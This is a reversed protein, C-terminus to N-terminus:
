AGFASCQEYRIRWRGSSRDCITACRHDEVFVQGRFAGAGQWRRRVLAADEGLTVVMTESHTGGTLGYSPDGVVQLIAARDMITGNPAVYVYDETMMQAIASGNKTFWADQWAAMLAEVEDRM